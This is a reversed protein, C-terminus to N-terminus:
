SVGYFIGKNDHTWAISTFKVKSLVEPYNEGTSVNKFHITVWDSGSSSLGYAFTEGDESFKYTYIAVTGDESLLNPDFFVRPEEDLTDQVYMVSRCSFENLVLGFKLVNCAYSVM